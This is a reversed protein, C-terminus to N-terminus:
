PRVGLRRARARDIAAIQDDLRDALEARQAARALRVRIRDLQAEGERDLRGEAEARLLQDARASLDRVRDWLADAVGDPGAM